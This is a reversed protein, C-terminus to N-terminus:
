SELWQEYEADTMIDGLENTTANFPGSMERELRSLEEFINQGEVNFNPNYDVACGLCEFMKHNVYIEKVRRRFHDNYGIPYNSTFIFRGKFIITRDDEYKKSITVPKSDMLSLLTALHGQYKNIDFDEFWIFEYEETLTGFLFQNPEGAKWVKRNKLVYDVLETKGYGPPSEIYLHQIAEIISGAVGCRVNPQYLIRAADRRQRLDNIHEEIIGSVFRSNQGSAVLFPDDKNIRRPYRYVTKAHHKARAYLSLESVRVNFLFPCFDDKSLYILWNRVSRCCQVDVSHGEDGIFVMLLDRVESLFYKDTDCDLPKHYSEAGCAFRKIKLDISWYDFLDRKSWSINNITIAFNCSRKRGSM